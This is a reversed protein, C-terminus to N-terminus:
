IGVKVGFAIVLQDTAENGASARVEGYPTVKGNALEFNFGWGLNLNIGTEKDDAVADNDYEFRRTAFNFGALTYVSVPGGSVYYHFNGNFEWWHLDGNPYDRPFFFTLSPALSMHNNLMFEGIFGVGPRDIQSGYALYGGIRAQASAAFSVVGALLLTFLLKKM